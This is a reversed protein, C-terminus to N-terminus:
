AAVEGFEVEGLAIAAMYFPEGPRPMTPWPTYAPEPPPRHCDCRCRCDACHRDRGDPLIAAGGNTATGNTATYNRSELGPFNAGRGRGDRPPGV